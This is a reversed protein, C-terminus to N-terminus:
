LIQNLIKKSSKNSPKNKSNYKIKQTFLPVAWMCSHAIFYTAFLAIPHVEKYNILVIALLAIALALKIFEAIYVSRLLTHAVAIRRKTFIQRAFYMNPLVCVLGGLFASLAFDRKVFFLVVAICFTVLWQWVLIRNIQTPM